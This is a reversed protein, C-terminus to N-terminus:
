PTVQRPQLMNGPDLRVPQFLQFGERMVAKGSTYQFSAFFREVGFGEIDVAAYDAVIQDYGDQLM